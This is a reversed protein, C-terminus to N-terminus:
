GDAKKGAGSGKGWYKLSCHAQKGAMGDATTEVFASAKAFSCAVGTAQRKERGWQGNDM